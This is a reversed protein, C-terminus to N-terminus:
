SVHLIEIMAIWFAATSLFQFSCPDYLGEAYALFTTTYDDREHRDRLRNVFLGFPLIGTDGASLSM